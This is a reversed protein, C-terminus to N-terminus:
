PLETQPGQPYTSTFRSFQHLGLSQNIVSNPDLTSDVGYDSLDHTRAYEQDTQPAPVNPLSAQEEEILNEQSSINDEEPGPPGRTQPTPFLQQQKKDLLAQFIPAYSKAIEAIQQFGESTPSKESILDVMKKMASYNKEFKEIDNESQAKNMNPILQLLLKEQFKSSSEKPENLSKIKEQIFINNLQRAQQADAQQQMANMIVAAGLSDQLGMKEGPNLSALQQQAQVIKSKSGIENADTLNSDIRQQRASQNQMYNYVEKFQVKELDTFNRNENKLQQEKQELGKLIFDQEAKKDADLQFKIKEQMAPTIKKLQESSEIRQAQNNPNLRCNKEHTANGQSSLLGKGCYVCPFYIKKAKPKKNTKTPM